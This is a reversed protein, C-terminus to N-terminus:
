KKRSLIKDPEETGTELSINSEVDLTPQDASRENDILVSMGEDEGVPKLTVVAPGLIHYHDDLSTSPKLAVIM